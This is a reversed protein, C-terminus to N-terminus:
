SILHRCGEVVDDILAASIKYDDIFVDIEQFKKYPIDISVTFGFSVTFYMRSSNTFYKDFDCKEKWQFTPKFHEDMFSEFSNWEPRNWKGSFDNFNKSTNIQALLADSNFDLSTIYKNFHCFKMHFQSRVPYSENDIEVKNKELWSLSKNYIHYGQSKTNGPWVRFTVQDEGRVQEFYPIIESAWDFNVGIAMRDTFGLVTQSSHNIIQKLRIHRAHNSKNSVDYLGPLQHFPRSSFWYPYKVEALEIFDRILEHDIKNLKKINVVQEMIIMTHKWSFNKPIISILPEAKRLPEVQDFLQQKCDESYRKVEIVLAIDKIMIWVDTFNNNKNESPALNNFDSMDLKNDSTMAIAYVKRLDVSEISNTNIQLDIVFTPDEDLYNFLYEYDAQDLIAKIYQAFFLADHKLCLAFARSLNNEIFESGQSENFYRFLNLHQNM